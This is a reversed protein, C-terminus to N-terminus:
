LARNLGKIKNNMAEGLPQGVSRMCFIAFNLYFVWSLITIYLRERYISKSIHAKSFNSKRKCFKFHEM